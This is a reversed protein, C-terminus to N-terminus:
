GLPALRFPKVDVKKWVGDKVYPDDALYKHAEDESMDDLVMVSGVMKGEADLIAGGFKIKGTAKYKKTRELHAPRAALRRELAQADTGDYAIVVFQKHGPPSTAPTSYQRKNAPQARQLYCAVGRSVSPFL